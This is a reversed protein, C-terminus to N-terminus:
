NSRLLSSIEEISDSEIWGEGKAVKIDRGVRQKKWCGIRLHEIKIKLTGRWTFM